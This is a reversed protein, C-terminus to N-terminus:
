FLAEFSVFVRMKEKILNVKRMHPRALFPFVFSTVEPPCGHIWAHARDQRGGVGWRLSMNFMCTGGGDWLNAVQLSELVALGRM